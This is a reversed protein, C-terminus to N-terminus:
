SEKKKEGKKTYFIKGAASTPANESERKKWIVMVGGKWSKQKVGNVGGSVAGGKARPVQHTKKKGRKKKV